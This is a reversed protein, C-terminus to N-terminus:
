VHLPAPPAGRARRRKAGRGSGACHAGQQRKTGRGRGARKRGGSGCGGNGRFGRAQELAPALWAVMDKKAPPKGKKDYEHCWFGLRKCIEKLKGVGARSLGDKHMQATFATPLVIDGATFHGDGGYHRYWVLLKERHKLKTLFHGNM